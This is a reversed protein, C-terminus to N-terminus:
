LDCQLGTATINLTVRCRGVIGWECGNLWPAMRIKATPKDRVNLERGARVRLNQPSSVGLDQHQGFVWSRAREASAVWM